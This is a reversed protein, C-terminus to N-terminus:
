RGAPYYDYGAQHEQAARGARDFRASWALRGDARVLSMDFSGDDQQPQGRVLRCAVRLGVPTTVDAPALALVVDRREGPEPQLLPALVGLTSLFVVPGAPLAIDNRVISRPPTEAHGESDALVHADLRYRGQAITLAGEMCPAGDLRTDVEVGTSLPFGAGEYHATVTWGFRRGNRDVEAKEAVTWRWAGGALPERVATVTRLGLVRHDAVSLVRWAREDKQVAPAAPPPPPPPTACAALLLVLPLSPPLRM